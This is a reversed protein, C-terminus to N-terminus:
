GLGANTLTDVVVEALMQHVVASPHLPDWFVYQNPNACPPATIAHYTQLLAPSNLVYDSMGPINAFKTQMELKLNRKTTTIKLCADSVNTISQHYKQNYKDPNTVLDDFTGYVDMAVFKVTPYQNQLQVIAGALKQNHMTTVTHLKDEIQKMKAYPTKALDPLNFILFNQAGQGILSNVAWSIKDVVKNTLMDVNRDNEFLYDNAGIWIVYLVKSKDAIISHLSYSILEGELTTPAIFRDTSPAHLIATAGGYAYNVYGTYYKDYYAKGVDEAWTPGNSFRGQFYPPSPPFLKTLHYLNGNDSLSDGFFIIQKFPAAFATSSFFLALFIFFIKKM